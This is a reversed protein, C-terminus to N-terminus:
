PCGFAGQDRDAVLQEAPRVALRVEREHGKGFGVGVSLRPQDVVGYPGVGSRSGRQRRLGIDDALIVGARVWSQNIFRSRSWRRACDSPLSSRTRHGVPVRRRSACRLSAIRANRDDRLTLPSYHTTALCDDPAPVPQRARCQRLVRRTGTSPCCPSVPARGEQRRPALPISEGKMSAPLGKESSEGACQSWSRLPLTM